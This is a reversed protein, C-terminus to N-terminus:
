CADGGAEVGDGDAHGGVGDGEGQDPGRPHGHRRGRGVGAPTGRGRLGRVDVVVQVAADCADDVAPGHRVSQRADLGELALVAHLARDHVDRVQGGICVDVEVVLLSGAARTCGQCVDQAGAAHRQAHQLRHHAAHGHVGRQQEVGLEDLVVLVCVGAHPDGGAGVSAFVLRLYTKYRIM